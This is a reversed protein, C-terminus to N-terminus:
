AIALESSIGREAQLVAESPIVGYILHRRSNDWFPVAKILDRGRASEVESRRSYHVGAFSCGM